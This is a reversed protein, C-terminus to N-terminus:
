TWIVLYLETSPDAGVSATCLGDDVSATSPDAGVSPPGDGDSATCFGDDVSATSPDFIATTFTAATSFM